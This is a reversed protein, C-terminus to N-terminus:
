PRGAVGALQDRLRCNNPARAGDHSPSIEMFDFRDRIREIECCARKIKAFGSTNVRRDPCKPAAKRRRDM